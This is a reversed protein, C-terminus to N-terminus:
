QLPFDFYRSGYQCNMSSCVDNCIVLPYYSHQSCAWKRVLPRSTTTRNPLASRVIQRNERTNAKLPRPSKADRETHGEAVWQNWIRM